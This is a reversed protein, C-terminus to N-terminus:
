VPMAAAYSMHDEVAAVGPVNEVAVRLAHREQESRLRGFLHVEGARVIVNVASPLAGPPARRLEALIAARIASDSAPEAPRAAPGSALAQVLNARSVLGVLRGDQLVPVRKIRKTEMLDATDAAPTDPRVAVVGRTMVDAAHRGHSRVYDEALTSGPTALELWRSRRRETGAEGRRLLDGESVIGVVEGGRVIPVASIGRGIMLRALEAVTTQPTATVVERTMIDSAQM